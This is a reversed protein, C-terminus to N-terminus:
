EGDEGTVSAAYDQGARRAAELTREAESGDFSTQSNIPPFLRLQAMENGKPWSARLRLGIEAGHEAAIAVIQDMAELPLMGKVSLAATIEPAPDYQRLVNLSVEYGGVDSSNWRVSIEQNAM